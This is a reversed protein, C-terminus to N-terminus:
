DSFIAKAHAEADSDIADCSDYVGFLDLARAAGSLFSPMAFFQDTRFKYVLGSRASRVMMM